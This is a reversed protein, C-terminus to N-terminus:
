VLICLPPLVLITPPVIVHYLCSVCALHAAWLSLTIISCLSVWRLSPESGWTLNGYRPIQCQSSGGSFKVNIALPAQAYSSWPIPSVSAASKFPACLSEHASPGLAFCLSWLFRPCVQRFIKSSRRPFCAAVTAQQLSPCQLCFAQSYDDTHVGRSTAM